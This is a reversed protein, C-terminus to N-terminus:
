VPIFHQWIFFDETNGKEWIDGEEKTIKKRKICVAPPFYFLSLDMEFWLM